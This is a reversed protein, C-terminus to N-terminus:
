FNIVFGLNPQLFDSLFKANVTKIEYWKTDGEKIEENMGGIEFGTLKFEVAANESFMYLLGCTVNASYQQFGYNYLDGPKDDRSIGMQGSFATGISFDFYYRLKGLLRDQYRLFPAIEFSKGESISFQILTGYTGFAPLDKFINEYYSLGFRIGVAVKPNLYFGQYIKIHLFGTNSIEKGYYISEVNKQGFDFALNGGLMFKKHSTSDVKNEQGNATYSLMLATIMLFILNKM